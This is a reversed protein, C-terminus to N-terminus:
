ELRIGIQTRQLNRQSAHQDIDPFKENYKKKNKCRECDSQCLQVPIVSVILALVFNFAFSIRVRKRRLCAYFKYLCRMKHLCCISLCVQRSSIRILDRLKGDTVSKQCDTNM